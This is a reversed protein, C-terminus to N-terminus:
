NRTTEGCATSAFRILARNSYPIVIGAHNGGKRGVIEGGALSDVRRLGAHLALRRDIWRAEL